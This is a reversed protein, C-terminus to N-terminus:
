APRARAGDLGRYAPLRRDAAARLRHALPIPAAFAPHERSGAAGGFPDADCPGHGAINELGQCIRVGDVSTPIAPFTSLVRDYSLGKEYPAYRKPDFTEPAAMGGALWILICADATAAPQVVKEGEALLRPAGMSLTAAGAAALMRLFERRALPEPLSPDLPSPANM